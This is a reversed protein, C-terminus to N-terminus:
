TNQMILNIFSGIEIYDINFYYNILRTGLNKSKITENIIYYHILKRLTQNRYSFHYLNQHIYKNISNDGYNRELRWPPIDFIINVFKIKNKKIKKLIRYIRYMCFYSESIILDLNNSFQNYIIKHGDKELSNMLPKLFHCDYIGINM